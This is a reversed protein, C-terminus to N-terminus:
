SGKRAMYTTLDLMRQSFGSENDYWSIVKILNGEVVATCEADITSSHVNGNFDTSVLPATSYGLIGKM